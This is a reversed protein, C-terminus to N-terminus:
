NMRQDRPFLENFNLDFQGKLPTKYNVYDNNSSDFMIKM